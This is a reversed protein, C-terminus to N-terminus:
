EAMQRAKEMFREADVIARVHEGKGLCTEGMWASVTYFVLRKKQKTLQAVVRIRAGEVSPADHSVNMSIGVSTQGKELGLSSCAAHEMWAIMRPTALVPLSGSGLASAFDDPAVTHYEVIFTEM